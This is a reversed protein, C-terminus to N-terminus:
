PLALELPTVQGEVLAVERTLLVDKLRRLSVTYRGASLQSRFRGDPEIYPGERNPEPTSPDAPEVSVHLNTGDRGAPVVVHGELVGGRRLVITFPSPPRTPDLETRTRLFGQAESVLTIPRRPMHPLRFRGDPGTQALLGFHDSIELTADPVPQQALDVVRGHVDLGVDLLIEGLDLAAGAALEVEREFHAFGEAGLGLRVKGPLCLWEVRGDNWPAGHWGGAGDATHMCVSVHDPVQGGSPVRFRATVKLIRQAKVRLGQAPAVVKVPTAGHQNVMVEHEGPKLGAFRFRGEADSEAFALPSRKAGEQTVQLRQGALPEGREDVLTGEITVGREFRVERAVDAGEALEVRLEVDVHDPAALEFTWRGPRLAGLVLTGPTTTADVAKGHFHHVHASALPKGDADLCVIRLTANRRLRLEVRAEPDRGTTTVVSPPSAAFAESTARVRYARDLDLGLIRAQGEADTAAEFRPAHEDAAPRAQVVADPVVEGAPGRVTALLWGGPPLRLVIPTRSADSAAYLVPTEGRGYGELEAWVTVVWDLPLSHLQFRGEADSLAEGYSDRGGADGRGGFDGGGRTRVRAHALPRQTVADLVQGEVEVGAALVLERAAEGAPVLQLAPDNEGSGVFGSAEAEVGVARAAVADFRAVGRADTTGTHLPRGELTVIVRAGAIPQRLPGLVTVVLRSPELQAGPASPAGPPMAGPSAVPAGERPATGHLTPSAAEEPAQRDAVTPADEGQSPARLHWWLAAGGGLLLLLGM